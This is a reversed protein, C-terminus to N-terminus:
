KIEHEDTEKPIRGSGAQSENREENPQDMLTKNGQIKTKQIQRRLALIM